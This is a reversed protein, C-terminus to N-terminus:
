GFERFIRYPYWCAEVAQPLVKPNGELVVSERNEYWHGVLMKIGQLLPAPVDTTAAGYGADYNVTVAQIIANPTPWTEGDAEVIRGIISDTDVTYVSADVTQLVNDTDYYKISNVTQLPPRPILMEDPFEDIKYEWVSTILSRRTYNECYTRAALVYADILSDDDSIDVRLHAKMDATTVPEITPPTKLTLGYM